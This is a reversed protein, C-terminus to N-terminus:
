SECKANPITIKAKAEKPRQHQYIYIRLKMEKSLRLFVKILGLTIREKDTPLIFSEGFVDMGVDESIADEFLEIESTLIV